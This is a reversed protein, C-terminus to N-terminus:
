INNMQLLDYSGCMLYNHFCAAINNMGTITRNCYNIEFYNLLRQRYSGLLSMDSDFMWLKANISDIIAWLFSIDKKLKDGYKELPVAVLECNSDAEYFNFESSRGAFEIDGIMHLGSCLVIQITEGSEFLTYVRIDGNVLFFIYNFPKAINEGKNYRFLEFKIDDTDFYSRINYKNLYTELLKQNDIKKMEDGRNTMPKQKGSMVALVHSLTSM